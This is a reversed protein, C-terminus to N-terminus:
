RRPITIGDFLCREIIDKGRLASLWESPIADYGYVAGALAGAVCATTDSDDGLNVAELVCDAYNDTNAFCWIASGLTDLVYGGSRLASRPGEAVHALFAFEEGAPISSALSEALTKGGVLGRILHIFCM